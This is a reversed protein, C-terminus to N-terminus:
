VTEGKTVYQEVLTAYGAIDKWSDYYNPDGNVIRGLKNCIINLAEKHVDSLETGQEDAHGYLLKLLGQSLKAHNSFAGYRKGRQELTAAVDLNEEGADNTLPAFTEEIYEKPDVLTLGNFSIGGYYTNDLHASFEKFHVRETAWNIERIQLVTVGPIVGMMQLDDDSLGYGDQITVKDGVRFDRM